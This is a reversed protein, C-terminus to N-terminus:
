SACTVGWTQMWQSLPWDARIGRTFNAQAQRQEPTDVGYHASMTFALDRVAQNYKRVLKPDVWHRLRSM